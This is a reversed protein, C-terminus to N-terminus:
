IRKSLWHLIDSYVEENNLENLLEHRCEPYLKYAINTFGLKKYLALLRKIDKSYNGVPDKEGSIIFMPLEPKTMGILKKNSANATLKMLDHYFSSTCVFGCYPDHIYAGVVPYSRTLWDFATRDALKTYKSGEIILKKLYPSYYKPGKIKKVLSTMLLGFFILIKPPYATGSLIVGNYKDYSQIINRAILSGMSHGFLFFKKSKNNNAIYNSITIADDVVLQYGKHYSFFGLENLKKDTGHGRHDYLYVDFGNNVLYKAFPKYRKHHEAMGHLILISAKPRIGCSMYYLNTIYGDNQKITICNVTSM